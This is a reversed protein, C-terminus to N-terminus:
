TLCVDIKGSAQGPLLFLLHFFPSYTFLPFLSRSKLYFEFPVHESMDRGGSIGIELNEYEAMGPVLPIDTKDEKLVEKLEEQKHM